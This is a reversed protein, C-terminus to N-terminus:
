KKCVSSYASTGYRNIAFNTLTLPSLAFTGTSLTTNKRLNTKQRITNRIRIKSGSGCESNTDPDPFLPSSGTSYFSFVIVPVGYSICVTMFFYRSTTKAVINTHFLKIKQVPVPLIKDPEINPGTNMKLAPEAIAQDFRNWFM